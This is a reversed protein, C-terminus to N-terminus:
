SIMGELTERLRERIRDVHSGQWYYRDCDPCHLFTENEKQAHAPVHLGAEQKSAPQLRTNCQNCRTFMQENETLRFRHVVERLQSQTEEAVVLYIDSVAWEEPLARDRTLIIRQEELARQVLAADDIHTEYATDYGLLRLWRALSGLMADLMFRPRGNDFCCRPVPERRVRSGCRCHFTRGRVFRDAEYPRGCGPCPVPQELSTM